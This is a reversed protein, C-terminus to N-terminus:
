DRVWKRVGRLMNELAQEQKVTYGARATVTKEIENAKERVSEFFGVARDKAEDSVEDDIVEIIEQALRKVREVQVPENFFKDAM